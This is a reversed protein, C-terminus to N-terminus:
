EPRELWKFGNPKFGSLLEGEVTRRGGSVRVSEKMGLGVRGLGSLVGQWIGKEVGPGWVGRAAVQGDLVQLAAFAVPLGVCRAMATDNSNGYTILSSTHVEEHHPISPHTAIIEHSLIVLDREDQDYKLKQALLSAFHDIPAAPSPNPTTVLSSFFELAPLITPRDVPAIIDNLASQLSASDNSKISQGLRFELSRRVLSSWSDLHFKSETDLLGIQKFTDM